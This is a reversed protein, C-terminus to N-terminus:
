KKTIELGAKYEVSELQNKIRYPSETRNNAYNKQSIGFTNIILFVILIVLTFLFSLTINKLLNQNKVGTKNNLALSTRM